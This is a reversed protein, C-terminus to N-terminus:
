AQNETRADRRRLMTAIQSLGAELLAEVPRGRRHRDFMEMEVYGRYGGAGLAALWGAVDMLGQAPLDREPKADVGPEFWNCVQVVPVRGPAVEDLRWVDPDWASHYLDVILDLAPLRECLEVADRIANVCGKAITDVPHIPELALRVGHAQARHSLASLGDVIRARATELSQGAGGTGGTIVVLRHAGMRAAAEVLRLNEREQARAREPDTWTFYGASNLTSIDLGHEGAIRALGEPGEADLAAVTFGIADAGASKAAAAFDAVPYGPPALYYNAAIKAGAIKAGAIKADTM